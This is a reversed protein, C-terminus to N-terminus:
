IRPFRSRIRPKESRRPPRFFPVCRKSRPGAPVPEVIINRATM